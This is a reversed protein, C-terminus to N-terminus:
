ERWNEIKLGRVRKFERVNDTVLTLDLAIAHAAIQMDYPGIPHGRKELHARVEGFARAAEDDFPLCRLESLLVDLRAHNERPRRSREAGYRLEAVVVSSVSLDEVRSGLLRAAVKPFTGNLYDVCVNTDLAYRL